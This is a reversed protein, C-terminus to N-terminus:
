APHVHQYQLFCLTGSCQSSVSSESHQDLIATTKSRVMCILSSIKNPSVHLHLYIASIGLPLDPSSPRVDQVVCFSGCHDSPTVRGSTLTASASPPPLPQPACHQGYLTASSSLLSRSMPSEQPNFGRGLFPDEHFTM